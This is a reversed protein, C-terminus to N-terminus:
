FVPISSVDESIQCCVLLFSLFYYGPLDSGAYHFCMFVCSYLFARCICVVYYFKLGLSVEKQKYGVVVVKIYGIRGTAGCPHCGIVIVRLM